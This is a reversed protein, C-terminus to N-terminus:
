TIQGISASVLDPLPRACACFRRRFRAAMGLRATVGLLALVLTRILYTIPTLTADIAVFFRPAVALGANPDADLKVMWGEISNPYFPDDWARYLSHTCYVRRGDRSIEVM